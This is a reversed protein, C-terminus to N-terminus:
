GFATPPWQVDFGPTQTGSPNDRPSEEGRRGGLREYFGIASTNSSLVMLYFPRGPAVAQAWRASRRLLERGIGLGQAEPAVHLNDLLSGREPDHDPFTCAFGLLRSSEDEALVVRFADPEEAFRRTWTALREAPAHVDLYTPDYDDRYSRRWSRAHLAAIAPADTATATRYSLM